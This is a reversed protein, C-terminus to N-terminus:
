GVLERKEEVNEFAEIVDGERIDEYNEFAMGCEFGERVEPVEDKFRKLTKLKGEHIVVNDRILRVGAGRKVIGSTVKCGGVKGSKSMKFVQLIEANGLFQERIIPSLMGSVIQKIDDLLNYIINYYRIEIRDREAQLKANVEARVNFGFIVAKIANALQVDSESIAGAAYHVVKIKVEDSEIKEISSCIAEVSGHVDGKIIVNLEKQGGSAQKFLNEMTGKGLAKQKEILQLKKRYAVIDRADKDTDTKAFAEGAVPVEDFGLVEVPTSPGAEDLQNGKDDTITKVRGSASGAIVIDGKKLTGRQVLLTAVVGKGKDIRSEIVAGVPKQTPSAKLDLIEAQVLVAELLKDLNTRQKASIEVSQVEGGFSEVVIEQGLLEEKVKTPNAEPKDIKNIAVIIPVGAAKAHNIAEITQPMIGDDAAVVLIVIDTVNAGRARMATFAAHGPTDIFTIKEGAETTVQYAGIHQTIGGAEGSVVNASRLADLLSTKGHDVHGMVTVIPARNVLTAEDIIEEKLKDEIDSAAVRKPIHKFEGVILEATDADIEDGARNMMGLKMLEKIVDQVRVAMRNALEQVTILEPIIIEKAKFGQESSSLQNQQKLKKQRQRQMSSFSRVREESDFALAQTITLKGRDRRDDGGKGKGSGKKKDEIEADLLDKASKEIKKEKPKTPSPASIEAPKAEIVQNYEEIKDSLSQKVEIKNKTVAQQAPAEAQSKKAEEAQKIAALRANKEVESLGAFPDHAPKTNNAPLFKSKKVEVTVTKSRGRSLNQKVTGSELKKGISLTLKGKNENSETM